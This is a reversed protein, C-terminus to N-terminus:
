GLAKDLTTVVEVEDYKSLKEIQYTELNFCKQDDWPSVADVKTKQQHKHLFVDGLKLEHIQKM